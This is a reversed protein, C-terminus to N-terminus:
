PNKNYTKIMFYVTDFIARFGRQILEFCATSIKLIMESILEIFLRLAIKLVIQSFIKLTM